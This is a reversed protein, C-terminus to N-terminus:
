AHILLSPAFIRLLRLGQIQFAPFCSSSLDKGAKRNELNLAKGTRATADESSMKM